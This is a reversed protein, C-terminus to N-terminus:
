FVNSNHMLGDSIGTELGLYATVQQLGHISLLHSGPRSSLHDKTAVIAKSTSYFDLNGIEKPHYACCKGSATKM